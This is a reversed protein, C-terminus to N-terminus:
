SSRRKRDPFWYSVQEEETENMAKRDDQLHDNYGILHLAGHIVLRAVENAFSVNYETAQQRARDLNVYIEGELVEADDLTFSIVDTIYNHKLYKQNISKCYRSDVFVVSINARKRGIVRRVYGEIPQRRIHYGRHANFVVVTGM